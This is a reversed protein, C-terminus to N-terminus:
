YMCFCRDEGAKELTKNNEGALRSDARAGAFSAPPGTTDLVSQWEVGQPDLQRRQRIALAMPIHTFRENWFGAVVDTRGAM